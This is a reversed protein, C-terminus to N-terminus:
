ASSAAMRPKPLKRPLLIPGLRDAFIVQVLNQFDTSSFIAMAETRGYILSM